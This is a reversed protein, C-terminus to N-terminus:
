GNNEDTMNTEEKQLEDSQKINEESSEEKTDMTEADKNEVLHNQDVKKKNKLIFAIIGIIVLAGIGIYVYTMNMGVSKPSSVVLENQNGNATLELLDITVNQGDVTGVNSKANGPMKINLVMEMGLAKMKDVSYGAAYSLESNVQNKFDDLPMRLVICDEGDIKEETIMTQMESSTTDLGDVHIGAWNKGDISENISTITANEMGESSQMQQKLQEIAEDTSTGSMSLLSEEFLLDMSGTASKDANVEFNIKIKMCGTLLFVALLLSLTKLIKKM